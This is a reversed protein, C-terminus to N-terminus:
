SSDEQSPTPPTAPLVTEKAVLLHVPGTPAKILSAKLSVLQCSPGCSSPKPRRLLRVPFGPQTACRTDPKTSLESLRRRRPRMESCTEQRECRRCGGGWGRVDDSNAPQTEADVTSAPQIWKSRPNRCTQDLLDETGETPLPPSPAQGLLYKEQDPSTAAQM